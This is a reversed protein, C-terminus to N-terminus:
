VRRPRLGHSQPGTVTVATATATTRALAGPGVATSGGSPRDGGLDPLYSWADNTTGEVTISQAHTQCSNIVSTRGPITRVVSAGTNPLSRVNLSDGWTAHAIGNTGGGGPAGPDDAKPAMRLAGAYDNNAGMRFDSVM